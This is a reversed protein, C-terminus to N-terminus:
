PVAFNSDSLMKKRTLQDKVVRYEEYAILNEPDSRLHAQWVELSECPPRRRLEDDSRQSITETAGDAAISSEFRGVAVQESVFRINQSADLVGDELDSQAADPTKALGLEKQRVSRPLAASPIRPTSQSDLQARTTRYPDSIVAETAAIEASTVKM